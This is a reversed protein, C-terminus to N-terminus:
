EFINTCKERFHKLLYGNAMPLAKLPKLYCRALALLCGLLL